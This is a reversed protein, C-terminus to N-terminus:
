AAQGKALAIGEPIVRQADEPGAWRLNKVWKGKELDKYHQFFHAIQESLIEPLDTYSKVKEYFPHLDDVPVAIIKEDLGANDEMYLVGIARCRIVCGPIVPLQCIVVVDCPDGDGSLTHDDAFKPPFAPDPVARFFAGRVEPPLIGEVPLGDLTLETRVPANLGIFYPTPPYDGM